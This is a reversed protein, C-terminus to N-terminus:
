LESFDRLTESSCPRSRLELPKEYDQRLVTEVELILRIFLDEHLKHAIEQWAYVSETANEELTKEVRFITVTEPVQVLKIRYAIVVGFSAGGGGGRIAWFMDEGMSKRDLIIGNVDVVKADIINDVSLGYKRMMNGYGGGSLHGGVGVTPCVGAPFGHIRSRESIEYYVEGLTAGAQVWASESELDVDIYRLKFMDLLFFPVKNSKSIYSLGEYDHGGSRIKMELGHRQACFFPLRSM